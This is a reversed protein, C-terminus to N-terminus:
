QLLAPSTPIREVIRLHGGRMEILIMDIWAQHYEDFKIRGIPTNPVDIEELTDRISKRDAKGHKKIALEIAPVVAYRFTLAAMSGHVRVPTKWRELWKKEWEPDVAATWFSAEVIGDGITPNDKVQNLFEVTAVSGRAFLKKNLGLERFQRMFVSADSALM